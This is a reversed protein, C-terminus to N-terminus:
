ASRQLVRRAVFLGFVNAAPLHELLKKRCVVFTAGTVLLDDLLVIQEIDPLDGLHEECIRIGDELEKLTSRQGSQHAPQRERITELLPRVNVQPDIARIIRLNRDDYESHDPPKSPPVPVFTFNLLTDPKVNHRILSGVRQIDCLKFKWEKTGQKNPHKKLDFIIRNTASHDYGKRATYEGFYCCVHETNLYHHHDREIDGVVRLKSQWSPDFTTM